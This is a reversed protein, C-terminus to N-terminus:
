RKDAHSPLHIMSGPFKKADFRQSEKKGFRKDKSNWCLHTVTNTRKGYQVHILTIPAWRKQDENWGYMIRDTVRGDAKVNYFFRRSENNENVYDYQLLQNAPTDEMLSMQNSESAEPKILKWNNENEAASATNVSATMMMAVASMAMMMNKFTKM